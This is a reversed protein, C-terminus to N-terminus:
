VGTVSLTSHVYPKAERFVIDRGAWLWEHSLWQAISCWNNFNLAFDWLEISYRHCRSRSRVNTESTPLQYPMLRVSYHVAHRSYQVPRIESRQWIWTGSCRHGEREAATCLSVAKCSKTAHKYTSGKLRGLLNLGLQGDTYMRGDTRGHVILLKKSKLSIQFTPLPRHTICSRWPWPSLTVLGQFNSIRGNEVTIEEAM